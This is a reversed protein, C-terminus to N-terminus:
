LVVNYDGGKKGWCKMIIREEVVNDKWFRDKGRNLVEVFDIEIDKFM